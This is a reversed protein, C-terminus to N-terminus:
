EEDQEPADDEGSDEEAQEEVQAPAEAVTVPPAPAPAPAAPKFTAVAKNLFASYTKGEKEPNVAFVMGVSCHNGQGCYFWMPKEDKVTIELVEKGCENNPNPRFGSKIADPADLATCPNDFSSQTLTHNKALFEFRIIDGPLARVFAPDYRLLDEGGVLVTHTRPEKWDPKAPPTYCVKAGPYAPKPLDDVKPCSPVEVPKEEKPKEEVPPTYVPTEVKPKEPTEVPKEEKPKEPIEVPKEEKPKEEAPPTYVPPQEVKPKEPTEVPKEEKPKEIPPTYVPPQEVKPKEPTEAPPLVPADPKGCEPKGCGPQWHEVPKEEKPKEVPLEPVKVPEKPPQWGHPPPTPTAKGDDCDSTPTPVPPHVPAPPYGYGPQGNGGSYDINGHQKNIHNTPAALAIAVFVSAISISIKM